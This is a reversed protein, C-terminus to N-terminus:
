SPNYRGFNLCDGWSGIDRSHSGNEKFSIQRGGDRSLSEGCGMYKGSSAKYGKLPNSVRMWQCYDFDTDGRSSGGLRLRCETYAHGLLGCHYCYKPLKEYRLLLLIEGDDDKLDMRLFRHLPRSVDVTVRVRLYKGFCEGQQKFM